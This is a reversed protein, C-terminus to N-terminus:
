EQRESESSVSTDERTRLTLLTLFDTTAVEQLVTGYQSQHDENIWWINNVILYDAESEAFLNQFTVASVDDAFMEDYLQHRRQATHAPLAAQRSILTRSRFLYPVVSSSGTPVFNMAWAPETLVSEYPEDAHTEIAQLIELLEDTYWRVHIDEGLMLTQFDTRLEESAPIITGLVFFTVSALMVLSVVVNQLHRNEIRELALGVFYAAAIGFPLIFRVRYLHYPTIGIGLLWGTYPVLIFVLLAFVALLFIEIHRTKRRAVNWLAVSAIAFFLYYRIDDALALSMGVFPTGDIANIRGLVLERMEPDEIPKVVIAYQASDALRLGLLVTAAIAFPLLVMAFFRYARNITLRYLGYIGVAAGIIVTMTAHVSLLTLISIFYMAYNRRKKDTQYTILLSFIINFLILGAIYKDEILLPFSMFSYEEGFGFVAVLQVVVALAALPPSLDLRRALMYVSVILMLTIFPIFYPYIELLPMGSFFLMNALSMPWMVFWLRTTPLTGTHLIPEAFGLSTAHAFDYVYANYTQTDHSFDAVLLSFLFFAVGCLLMSISSFRVQVGPSRPIDLTLSAYLILVLTLGAVTIHIGAAPLNLAMGIVGLGSLVATSLLFGISIHHIFGKKPVKYIINSLLVGPLLFALFGKTALWIFPLGWSHMPSVYISIWVLIAALSIFGRQLTITKKTM